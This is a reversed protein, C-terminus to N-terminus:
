RTSQVSIPLSFTCRVKKGRQEGPIWGKYSSVVRVAEAGTGFGIDRLVKVDTISGDTEVVFSVYVKGNLGQINPTKFNKGIFEYFHEMGKKPVPRIESVTYKYEVKNSDISVGSILEGKNYNEVYSFKTKKNFGTWISDKLNNVIKGSGFGDVNNRFPLSGRFYIEEFFGNGENITQIGKENWCNKVKVNPIVTNKNDIWEGELKKEGTEHFEFYAGVPKDKEYNLISRRKGDEYFYLFTGTRTINNRNSTAGKMQIKGSKFYVNMLYEEKNPNKFDQIVRIYRYNEATGIHFLSDLYVAEDNESLQSICINPILLFLFAVLIPKM